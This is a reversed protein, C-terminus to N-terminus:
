QWNRLSCAGGCPFKRHIDLSTCLKSSNHQKICM